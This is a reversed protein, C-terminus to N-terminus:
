TPGSSANEGTMTKPDLEPPPVSSPVTDPPCPPSSDDSTKLNCHDRGFLHELVATHEDADHNLNPGYWESWELIYGVFSHPEGRYVKRYREHLVVRNRAGFITCVHYYPGVQNDRIMEVVRGGQATILHILAADDPHRLPAATATQNFTSM